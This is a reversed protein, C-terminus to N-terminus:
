RFEYYCSLQVSNDDYKLNVGCILTRAQEPVFILLKFGLPLQIYSGMVGDRFM